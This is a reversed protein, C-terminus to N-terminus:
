GGGYIFPAPTQPKGHDFLRLAVTAAIIRSIPTASNVRDWMTLQGVRRTTAGALECDWGPDGDHFPLPEGDDPKFLHIFDGTATGFDNPGLREIEIGAAELDDLVSKVPGANDAGIPAGSKALQPILTQLWHTGPGSQIVKFCAAGHNNRWAAVIAAESRDYAVDFGVALQEPRELDEVACTEWVDLPIITELSKTWQNAMNRAFVGPPLDRREEDWRARSYLHGIAPHYDAAAPDTLDTDDPLSWEWFAMGAHPNAYDRRGRERLELLYESEATGAASVIWSQRDARTLQAGRVAADLAAGKVADFAWAEDISVMPVSDGHGSTKSPPFPAITSTNPFTLLESGQARRITATSALTPNHECADVVDRWRSTAYKGLQATMLCRTGPEALARDVNAARMLVTKGSQRPVLIVVLPYVWPVRCRQLRSVASAAAEFDRAAKAKLYEGYAVARAAKTAAIDETRQELAVMAVHKQWPLLPLGILAAVHALRPGYSVNAPNRPTGFRPAPFDLDAM